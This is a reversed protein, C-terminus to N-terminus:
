SQQKSIVDLTKTLYEYKYKEGKSKFTFGAAANNKDKFAKIDTLNSESVGLRSSINKLISSRTNTVYSRDFKRLEDLTDFEFIKDNSYRRIKMQLENIHHIYIDEWLLDATSPAGYQEKLIELFKASFHEDWFTHGLMYWQHSGGITVHRIIDNQDVELCWEDTQGQSFVASYYSGDEQDSFPNDLFYDDASCIYSNHIVDAAAMISANNNRTLYSSNHILQVSYKDKLYQFKEALYGTVIYINRVGADLLQRIQREIMVEGRVEILAKPQEYSLPAFRSSTGAALIVANDVMYM